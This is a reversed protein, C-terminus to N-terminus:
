QGSASGETCVSVIKNHDIGPLFLEIEHRVQSYLDAISSKLFEYISPDERSGVRTSHKELREYRM